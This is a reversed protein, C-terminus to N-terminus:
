YSRNIKISKIRFYETETTNKDKKTKCESNSSKHDSKRSDSIEGNKSIKHKNDAVTHYAEM